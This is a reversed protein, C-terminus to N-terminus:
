KYGWVWRWFLDWTVSEFVWLESHRSQAEFVAPRMTPSVTGTRSPETSIRGFDPDDPDGACPKDVPLITRIPSEAAYADRVPIAHAALGAGVLALVLACLRVYRCCVVRDMSDNDGEHM